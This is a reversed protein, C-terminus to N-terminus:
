RFILKVVNKAADMQRLFANISATTVLQATEAYNDYDLLTCGDVVENAMKDAWKDAKDGDELYSKQFYALAKTLEEQTIGGKVMQEWIGYVKDRLESARLTDAQFEASVEFSGRPIANSEENVNITYVDGDKERMVDMARQQFVRAVIRNTLENVPSYPLPASVGLVVMAYPGMAGTQVTRETVGQYGYMKNDVWRTPKGGGNISAIYKEVMPKLESAPQAGTIIFTYGNASGFCRNWANEISKADIHDFYDGHQSLMRPNNGSRLQAVADQLRQQPRMPFHAYVRNQQMSGNILATDVVPQMFRLYTLQMMQEVSSPLSTGEMRESYGYIHSDVKFGKAQQVRNLQQSSLQEVGGAEVFTTTVQASPLEQLSFMSEGGPRVARLCVRSRDEPVQKYIVTAGNALKWTTTNNSKDILEKKIRGPKPSVSFEPLPAEPKLEFAFGKYNIKKVQDFIDLIDQKAPYSLGDPSTLIVSMNKDTSWSRMLANVSALTLTDLVAREYPTFANYDVIPEGELYHQELMKAIEDNTKSVFANQANDRLMQAKAKDFEAQTFGVQKLREYELLLMRVARTENGPQSVGAGIQYTFYGRKLPMVALSAGALPSGQEHAIQGLRTAGMINIMRAMITKVLYDASSKEAEPTDRILNVIMASEGQKDKDTAVCYNLTDREPVAFFPRPQSKDGMPAEGLIRRLTSEMQKVDFDGVVVVDVMAPNLWAAYFKRLGEPTIAKIDAITGLVDHNEYASGRLLSNAWQIQIRTDANDRMALERLIPGREHEIRDDKLELAYTWDAMVMLCSDLLKPDQTPVKSLTYVTENESTHANIDYGYLVGHRELMDIMAHGPFHQTGQFMEHELYHAMGHQGPKEALAGIGNVLYFCAQHRPTANHRIMYTIGNDLRGTVVNNDLPLSSSQAFLTAGSLLCGMFLSFKHLKM